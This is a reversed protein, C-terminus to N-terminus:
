QREEIKLDRGDTASMKTEAVKWKEPARGTESGCCRPDTSVFTMRFVRRDENGGLRRAWSTEMSSWEGAALERCDFMRLGTDSYSAALKGKFYSLGLEPVALRDLEVRDRVRDVGVTITLTGKPKLVRALHKLVTPEGTAVARLLSGWPFNIYIEDAIGALEEPLDEVASQVLMANPLGGKAPKRTIRTSIKELPKTNADIGIFFKEPNAKATASM